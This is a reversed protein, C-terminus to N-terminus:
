GVEGDEIRRWMGDWTGVKVFDTHAKEFTKWEYTYCRIGDIISDLVYGGSASYVDSIIYRKCDFIEVVVDNIQFESM